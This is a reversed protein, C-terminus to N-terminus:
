LFGPTTQALGRLKALSASRKVGLIGIEVFPQLACALRIDETAGYRRIPGECLLGGPRFGAAGTPIQFKAPVRSVVESIGFSYDNFSMVFPGTILGGRQM